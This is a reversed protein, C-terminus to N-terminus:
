IKGIMERDKQLDGISILGGKEGLTWLRSASGARGGIM